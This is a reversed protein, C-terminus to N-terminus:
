LFKTKNKSKNYTRLLKSRLAMMVDIEEGDDCQAEGGASGSRVMAV